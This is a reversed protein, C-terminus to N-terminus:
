PTGIYDRKGIEVQARAIEKGNLRDEVGNTANALTARLAALDARTKGDRTALGTGAASDANVSAWHALFDDLTALYTSPGSIM